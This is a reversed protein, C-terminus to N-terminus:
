DKKKKSLWEGIISDDEESLTNESRKGGRAVLLVKSEDKVAKSEAREKKYIDKAYLHLKEISPVIRLIEGISYAESENLEGLHTDLKDLVYQKEKSIDGTLYDVSVNFYKAIKRIHELSKAQGKKWGQMTTPHLGCKIMLKNKSVDKEKALQEITQLIVDM